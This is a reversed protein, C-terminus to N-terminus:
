KDAKLREHLAKKFEAVTLGRPDKKDQTITIGSAVGKSITPSTLKNPAMQQVPIGLEVGIVPKKGSTLVMATGTDVDPEVIFHGQQWGYLPHVQSRDLSEVFYIGQEGVEPLQMESVSMSVEGVTGGLFSLVITDSPYGGKIVDQIEYTVFTHIRGQFNEEAKMSLVEGEFVFQCAQLMEDMTVERVSSANGVSFPILFIFVFMVVMLAPCDQTTKM